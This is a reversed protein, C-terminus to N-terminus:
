IFLYLAEIQKHPTRLLAKQTYEGKHDICVKQHM